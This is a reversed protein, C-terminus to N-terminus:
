FNFLNIFQMKHLNILRTFYLLKKLIFGIYNPKTTTFFINETGLILEDFYNQEDVFLDENNNDNDNFEIDSKTDITKLYLKDSITSRLNGISIEKDIGAFVAYSARNWRRFRIKNAINLHNKEL